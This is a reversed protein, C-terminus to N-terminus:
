GDSNDAGLCNDGCVWKIILFDKGDINLESIREIPLDPNGDYAAQKELCNCLDENDFIGITFADSKDLIKPPPGFLSPYSTEACFFIGDKEFLAFYGEKCNTESKKAFKKLLASTDDAKEVAPLHEPKNLHRSVSKDTDAEYKTPEPLIFCLIFELIVTSLGLSIIGLVIIARLNLQNSLKM